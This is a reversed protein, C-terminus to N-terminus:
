EGFKASIWDKKPLSDLGDLASEKNPLFLSIEKTPDSPVIIELNEAGEAIITLEPGSPGPRVLFIAAGLCLTKPAVARASRWAGFFARPNRLMTAVMSLITLLKRRDLKKLLSYLKRLSRYLLYLSLFYYLFTVICYFIYFCM